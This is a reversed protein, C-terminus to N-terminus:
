KIYQYAKILNQATADWNYKSLVYARGSKGMEIMRAQNQIAFELMERLSDVNRDKFILGCRTEKVIRKVAACDSAIVPKAALMYQFLKNPIGYDSNTNKLQPLLAVDVKRLYRYIESLPQWGLFEVAKSMGSEEVYKKLNPLIKGDGIVKLSIDKNSVYIEKLADITLELGRTSDINGAYIFSFKPDRNPMRDLEIDEIIPTNPLVFIKDEEAGVEVFRGKQEEIVSLVVDAKDLMQKEYDLWQKFSFLIQGLPTNIHQAEKLLYPYNEHLDLVFPINYKLALESGVKALPLDHIHIVDYKENTLISNLYKRWFNFYLPYKLAGVSSKYTLTPIYKRKIHIGNYNEDGKTKDKTFCAVTVEYGNEILTKAEKEVRIDPPFDVELVMLVRKM